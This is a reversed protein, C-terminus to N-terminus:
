PRTVDLTVRLDGHAVTFVQSGRTIELDWVLLSSEDTLTVTDAPAIEISLAGQSANTVTIGGGITKQFLAASDSINQKATFKVTAGTLDFVSSGTKVTANLQATDGRLMELSTATVGMVIERFWVRM